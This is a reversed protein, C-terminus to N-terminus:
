QPMTVGEKCIHSPYHCKGGEEGEVHKLITELTHGVQSIFFRSVAILLSIIHQFGHILFALQCHLRYYLTKWGLIKNYFIIFNQPISYLIYILFLTFRPSVGSEGPTRNSTKWYEFWLSHVYKDARYYMNLKSTQLFTTQNTDALYM